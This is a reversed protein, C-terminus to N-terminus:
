SCRLREMESQIEAIVNTNVIEKKGNVKESFIYFVKGGFKTTFKEHTKAQIAYEKHIEPLQIGSKILRIQLGICKEGVKIFFDVDFLRDWKDPAGEIKVGLIHELQGYITQPKTMYGDVTCDIVQPIMYEICDQETVMELDRQIVDTIKTYLIRGLDHTVVPNKSLIKRIIENKNM